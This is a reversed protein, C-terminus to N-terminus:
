ALLASLRAGVAQASLTRRVDDQGRLARRRAEARDEYVHRLKAAADEVDPEAWVTGTCFPGETETVLAERHAVLYANDPTMYELNGSYGTAVVPVGLAMAEAMTYGFGEARHLSLYVDMCRMLSELRPRPLVDSIVRHAIGAERLLGAVRDVRLVNADQGAGNIKLVVLVDRTGRFARVIARAAAAPNKRELASTADLVLGVVFAGPPLGHDARPEGDQPEGAEVVCPLVDCPRGFARAISGAAFGSLALLRDYPAFRAAWDAVCDRQEWALYAITARDGTFAGPFVDLVDHDIHPYTVVLSTGCRPDPQAELHEVALDPRMTMNTLVVPHCRLGASTAAAVVGHAASGLGIPSAFHGLVNLALPDTPVGPDPTASPLVRAAVARSTEASPGSLAWEALALDTADLGHGSAADAALSRVAPLTLGDERVRERLGPHRQLRALIRALAGDLDLDAALAAVNPPVEYDQILGRRLWDEFAERDAGLPDPMAAVLDGRHEHIFRLCTAAEHAPIRQTPDARAVVFPTCALYAAGDESEVPMRAPLWALLDGPYLAGAEYLGALDGRSGVYAAVHPPLLPSDALLGHLGDLARRAVVPWPGTPAPGLRPESRRLWGRLGPTLALGGVEDRGYAPQPGLDDEAATLSREYLACLGRVNANSDHLGRHDHVSLRGSGPRFGSFHFSTLPRGDLLFRDAPGDDLAAWRVPREHLNWYAVNVTPDRHVAVADVFSTVWNFAQQERQERFEPVFAGAGTILEAWTDLFPRTEPHERAVFMGANFVGALAIDGMSPSGHRQTAPFPRLMHPVVVFAAERRHALLGAGDGLFLVDADCYFVEAEGRDLLHRVLFPKVVCCLSAADYKTALWEWTPLGLTAADLLRVDLADLAPLRVPGPPHDVLAVHMRPPTAWTRAASRALALVAPLHSRTAVVALAAAGATM